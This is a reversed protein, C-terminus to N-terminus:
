GNNNNKEIEEELQELSEDTCSSIMDGILKIALSPTVKGNVELMNKIQYEEVAQKTIHDYSGSISIGLVEQLTKVDEGKCGLELIREIDGAAM